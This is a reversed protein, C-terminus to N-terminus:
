HLLGGSVIYHASLREREIVDPELNSTAERCQWKRRVFVRVALVSVRYKPVHLTGKIIRKHRRTVHSKHQSHENHTFGTVQTGSIFSCATEEVRV